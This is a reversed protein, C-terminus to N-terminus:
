TTQERHERVFQRSAEDDPMFFCADKHPCILVMFGTTVPAGCKDCTPDDGSDSTLYDNM